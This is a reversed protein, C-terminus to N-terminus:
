RHLARRLVSLGWPEERFGLSLYLRLAAGNEQQTNVVASEVGWRRMWRLGDIVLGRGLGRHRHASDVAVRQVYGHRRSRGSVAYGVVGGREDIAVRFRAAPTAGIAEDLGTGDLRWFPPFGAGDIALVADRDTPRAARIVVPPRRPIEALDHSLLHLREHEEFGVALFAQQEAPALASTIVGTYGHSALEALCHRLFASSPPPRDPSPSLYAVRGDARWPGVRVREHGWEVVETQASM